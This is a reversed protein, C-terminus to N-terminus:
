GVCVAESCGLNEDPKSVRQQQAERQEELVLSRKQMESLSRCDELIM